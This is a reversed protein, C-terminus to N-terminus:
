PGTRVVAVPNSEQGDRQRIDEGRDGMGEHRVGDVSFLIFGEFIFGWFSM